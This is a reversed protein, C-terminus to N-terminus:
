AKSVENGSVGNCRIAFELGDIRGRMYAKEADERAARLQEEYVNCRAFLEDNERLLNEREKEQETKGVTMEPVNMSKEERM